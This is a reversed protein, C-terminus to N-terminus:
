TFKLNDINFMIQQFLNKYPCSTSIRFTIRRASKITKCAIKIFTSRISLMRSNRYEKPLVTRKIINVISYALGKILCKIYNALFSSHSLTDMSFDIKTEKIYNEMNGRKNYTKVVIKPEAELSTVIFTARPLLEGPAREVRCIVRRKVDWSNAQYMFFDYMVHHKSYDSGYTSQFDELIDESYKKLTANSKLRIVFEVCYEDCLEYLDPTAFGSDARVLITANPYKEELWKLVPELFDKIKNSTYVNGKRLEIKMLDGNLGNYLMLPHYGTSSYHFNYASLEQKGFTEVLTSDLDLVIHNTSHPTNGKEFLNELISNFKEIYSEDFANICRSITPQSALTDKDLLTTFMPDHRLDDSMDDTYYGSIITYILQEIISAYTHKRSVDDNFSTELLSRLGLKEIFSRIILLGADSSLNGGGFDYSISKNFNLSNQQLSTM